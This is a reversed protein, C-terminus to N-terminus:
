PLNKKASARRLRDNIAEGLQEPPWQWAIATDLNPDADFERLAKFLHQAAELSNNSPSLNWARKYGQPTIPGYGIWGTRPRPTFTLDPPSFHLAKKPAYHSTLMGPSRPTSSSHSQLSLKTGLFNELTERAVGGPRLITPAISSDEPIYLVTSELGIACPGGDLIGLEVDHFEAQVHPASTPSIRGSCNASPAALPFPLAKLLQLALPHNPVRVAVTAQGATVIDPIRNHKPLVLTLAGPWFSSALARALPSFAAYPELAELSHGHVILPNFIPRNKLSFIKAVAAASTANAALGYVTETPIAVCNNKRLADVAEPLSLIRAKV